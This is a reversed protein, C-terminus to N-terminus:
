VKLPFFPHVFQRKNELNQNSLILSKTHPPAPAQPLQLTKSHRWLVPSKRQLFLRSFHRPSLCLFLSLDTHCQFLFHDRIGTWQECAVSSFSRVTSTFICINPTIMTVVFPFAAKAWNPEKQWDLFWLHALFFALWYFVPFLQSDHSGGRSTSAMKEATEFCYRRKDVSALPKVLSYSTNECQCVVQKERANQETNGPLTGFHSATHCLSAWHSDERRNQTKTNPTVMFIVIHGGFCLVGGSSVSPATQTQISRCTQKQTWQKTRNVWFLQKTVQFMKPKQVTWNNVKTKNFVSFGQNGVSLNFLTATTSNPEHLRQESCIQKHPWFNSFGHCRQPWWFEPHHWTWTDTPHKFFQCADKRKLVNMNESFNWWVLVPFMRTRTLSTNKTSKTHSVQPRPLTLPVQGSRVISALLDGGEEAM